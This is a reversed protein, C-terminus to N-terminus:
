NAISEYAGGKAQGDTVPGFNVLFFLEYPPSFFYISCHLHYITGELLVLILIGDSELNFHLVNAPKSVEVDLQKMLPQSHNPFEFLPILLDSLHSQQVTTCM